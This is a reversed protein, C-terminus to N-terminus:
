APLEHLKTGRIKEPDTEFGSATIRKTNGTYEMPQGMPCIYTDQQENYNLNSVSFPRKSNYNKDQEKDFMKYKVYAKIEKRELLEYNEESGYGADATLVKPAKGFSKELQEIHTKLTLTDTPNPHITYNVIFQNSTSIQVNYAPKLQGNLMHDEKLCMFTADTDAKSYSNREGLITEQEEYKQIAVPYNKTVYNVKGRIKKDINNKGGLM